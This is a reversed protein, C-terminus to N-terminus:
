ISAVRSRRPRTMIHKFISDKKEKNFMDMGSLPRVSPTGCGNDNVAMSIATLLNSFVYYNEETEFKMVNAGASFNMPGDFSSQIRFEQSWQKSRSKSIDVALPRDSPGLQPDIFVGGAATSAGLYPEWNPKIDDFEEKKAFLPLSQFRFFDQSGYYKDKSYLTQSYIHLDDSADFEANLQFVDNKARFVPDYTTGIERLNSSQKGDKTAFPDIYADTLYGGGYTGGHGPFALITGTVMPFGVGNPVGFADPTFLSKNECGRSLTTVDWLRYLPITQDQYTLETPLPARTCLQKGTRSRDDDENFHEWIANIRLNPSVDWRASLRGSWLDRGNVAHKTATNYDFGERRTWAGAARLAFNDGFPINLVGRLRRTEFNGLEGQIEGTFKGLVPKAPIMNVVGATANRGYLTGQPGRLVEVREVDFYEQEFLRNRLLPTNNFSVAVAPDATASLAKTGVGRISFNYGTFNDKSFSVNPIARLLEPGGEIKQTDLDKASFASISIPVDMIREERKQATVVIDGAGSAQPGAPPEDAAHGIAPMMLGILAAGGLLRRRCPASRRNFEVRKM